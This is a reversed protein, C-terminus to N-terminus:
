GLKRLAAIFDQGNPTGVGTMNDYGKLTVQGTYGEMSFSQDDFTTLATIGCADAGCATGRYLAPTRSTIPLVDDLASTGVLKYLVPNLFGFSSAQGQQAAAVIGAVLPSAVSTGGIDSQSYVPPKNNPFSLAGLAVGTFPDADASIDPASRVLGGRNGPAASLAAPVIGKQYAPQKWLLSPGGGSASQEGLFEWTGDTLESIGTSWGTEFLRDGTKGIALTTGGVGIADPDSSPSLIGSGDGASFYMGVGEAAARLLYAHEIDTLYAPQSEDDGEWSNSAITALPHSGSGLVALDADFLGQLGFDGENCSDGGVVLQSADPAMAYSVEVDLQEEGDFFDGCQTGSGLSLEAYRESSPVPLGNAAAYDQLTLFMDQTLGLEILAVTQGKGTNVTNAGYATRILSGSYGCSETPFSTTGFQKPLGSVIHQGYYNSCPIVPAKAGVEVRSVGPRSGPGEIPLTPAANDLGTVGIVSGALSRPISVARNNARLTYPGANVAASSRYLQLQVHFARDIAAVPATARVYSRGADTHVGTFGQSGLWSAVKHAQSQSAGFRATYSAPSLYHHFMRNGPTSVAAAYRQAAATRPRLWVQISLRQSASANGIVAAHNTFPVASGPVMTDAAKPAAAAVGSAGTMMM